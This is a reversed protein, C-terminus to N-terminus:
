YDRACKRDRAFLETEERALRQITLAEIRAAITNPLLLIESAHTDGKALASTLTYLICAFHPTYTCLPLTM